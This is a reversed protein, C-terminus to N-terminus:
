IRRSTLSFGGDIYIQLLLDVAPMVPLTGAAMRVAESYNTEIPGIKEHTIFADNGNSPLLIIGKSIEICLQCQADKIDNPITDSPIAIIDDTYVCQRPWDLRQDGYTKRGKWRHRFLNLYDMANIAMIAVKNEDIPSGPVLTVGRMEAYAIIETATMYSNADAVNSGDEIVLDVM